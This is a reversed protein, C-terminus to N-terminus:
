VSEVKGWGWGWFAWLAKETQYIIKTMASTRSRSWRCISLARYHKREASMLMYATNTMELISNSTLKANLSSSIIVCIIVKRPGYKSIM